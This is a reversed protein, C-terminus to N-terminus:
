PFVHAFKCWLKEIKVDRDSSFSTRKGWDLPQAQAEALHRGRAGVLASLHSTQSLLEESRCPALQPLCLVRPNWQSEVLPSSLLGWLSDLYQLLPVSEPSSFTLSHTLLYILSRVFLCILCIKM